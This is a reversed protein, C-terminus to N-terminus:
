YYNTLLDNKDIKDKNQINYKNKLIKEIKEKKGYLKKKKM